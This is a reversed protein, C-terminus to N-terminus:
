NDRWPDERGRKDATTVLDDRGTETEWLRGTQWNGQLRLPKCPSGRYRRKINHLMTIDSRPREERSIGGEGREVHFRCTAANGWDPGGREKWGKGDSNIQTLAIFTTGHHEAIDRAKFAVRKNNQYENGGCLFEFEQINDLVIGMVHGESCRRDVDYLIADADKTTDCVDIPLAHFESYARTMIEAWDDTMLRESGPELLAHPIGYKWGFWYPLLQDQGGELPYFLLRDPLGDTLIADASAFLFHRAITTKGMGSMGSIVLLSERQFGLYHWDLTEWGSRMGYVRRPLQRWAEAREIMGAAVQEVPVAGRILREPVPCRIADVADAIALATEPSTGDEGADQDPEPPQFDAAVRLLAKADDITHGAEFFDAAGAKPPADHWEVLKISKVMGDLRAAIAAMHSRGVDDNDPWLYVTRGTLASLALFSPLADAGYTGVALCGRSALADTDKEGECIVAPSGPRTDLQWSLWLPLDVLNLGKPMGSVGDPGEWWVRKPAGDFDQRRHVAIVAGDAVVEYRRDSVPRVYSPTRQLPRDDGTDIGYVQAVFEARTRFSDQPRMRQVLDFCNGSWGEGYRHCLGAKDGPGGIQLSADTENGDFVWLCRGDQRASKREDVRLGLAQVMRLPDAAFAAKITELQEETLRM